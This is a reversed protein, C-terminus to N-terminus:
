MASGASPSPRRRRRAVLLGCAILAIIAALGLLSLLPKPIVFLVRAVVEIEPVPGLSRSDISLAANDGLLFVHGKPVAEVRRRAAGESPAGAIPITHGDVTVSRDGIAVNDGAIAVVRKVARGATGLPFRFLVIDQRRLAQRDNLSLDRTVIWDGRHIAPSMSNSTVRTPHVGSANAAIGIGAGALAAVALVAAARRWGRTV